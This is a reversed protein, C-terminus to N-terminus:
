FLLSMALGSLLMFMGLSERAAYKKSALKLFYYNLPWMNKIDKAFYPTDLANLKFIPSYFLFGLQFVDGYPETFKIIIEKINISLKVGFVLIALTYLTGYVFWQTAAKWEISQQPTLLAM